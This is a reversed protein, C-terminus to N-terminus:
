IIRRPFLPIHGEWDVPQTKKSPTGVEPRSKMNAMAFKRQKGFIERKAAYGLVTNGGAIGALAVEWDVPQSKSPTM